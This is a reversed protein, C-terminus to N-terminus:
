ILLFNDSSLLFLFLFLLSLGAIRHPHLLSRDELFSDAEDIFLLVGQSRFFTRSNAWDFLNRIEQIAKLYFSSLPILIFGHNLLSPLSVFPLLSLSFLSLSLVHIFVQPTTFQDFSPGSMVAFRMNSEQALKEAWLTKGTGPKGYLLLNGYHGGREKM